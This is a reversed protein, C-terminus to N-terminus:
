RKGTRWGAPQPPPEGALGRNAPGPPPRTSMPPTGACCYGAARYRTAINNLIEWQTAWQPEGIKMGIGIQDAVQQFSQRPHGAETMAGADSLYV